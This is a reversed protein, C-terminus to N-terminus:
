TALNGISRRAALLAGGPPTVTGARVLNRECRHCGGDITGTSLEVVDM